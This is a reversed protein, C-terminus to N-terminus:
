CGIATLKGSDSMIKLTLKGSEVSAKVNPTVAM